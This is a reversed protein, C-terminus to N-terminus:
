KSPLFSNKCENRGECAEAPKCPVAVLCLERKTSAAFPFKKILDADAIPDFLREKPCVRKGNGRFTEMARAYDRRERRSVMNERESDEYSTVKNSVDLESIFYGSLSIPADYTATRCFSGDQCPACLEGVPQNRGWYARAQGTERNM